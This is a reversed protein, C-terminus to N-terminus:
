TAGERPKTKRVFAGDKVDFDKFVSVTDEVIAHLWTIAKAADDEPNKGRAHAYANRLQM